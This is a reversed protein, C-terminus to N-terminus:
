QYIPTAFVSPRRVAPTQVMEALLTAVGVHVGETMGDTLPVPRCTFGDIGGADICCRLMRAETAGDHMVEPRDLLAALCAAIGYAGWNSVTATVLVDVTTADVVGAGCPCTCRRGFPLLRRPTAQIAGFGIENGRDGIGITLVRRRRAEEFLRGAKAVCDSNDAGNTQHYIGKRNPGNKEIAALARPRYRAFLRTTEQVALADDIPFPLVYACLNQPHAPRPAAAADAETLVNVGAGRCAATTIPVMPAETLIVTRAGLGLGLARALAAAGVPGDTEGYPYFGAMVWGSAVFVHDGPRVARQLREAALRALPRRHHARAAAYLAGIVGYGSVDLNVLRDVNECILDVLGARKAAAGARRRRTKADPV